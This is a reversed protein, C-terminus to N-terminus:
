NNYDGNYLVSLTTNTDFREVASTSDHISPVSAWQIVLIFCFGSAQIVLSMIFVIGLLQIASKMSAVSYIDQILWENQSM